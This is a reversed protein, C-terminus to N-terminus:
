VCDTGTMNSGGQIYIAYIHTCISYIYVMYICIYLVYITYTLVYICMCMCIRMVKTEDVNM